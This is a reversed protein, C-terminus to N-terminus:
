VHIYIYIIYLIHYNVSVMEDNEMKEIGSAAKEWTKGAGKLCGDVASNVGPLPCAFRADRLTAGRDTSM